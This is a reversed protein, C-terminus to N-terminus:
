CGRGRAWPAGRRPSPPSTPAACCVSRCRSANPGPNADPNQAGRGRRTSATRTTSASRASRPCCCRPTTPFVVADHSAHERLWALGAAYDHEVEAPVHAAARMDAQVAGSVGRVLQALAPLALFLLLAGVGLALAPRWSSPKVTDLFGGAFLALLLQGNYIPFLQSLGPVDLALGLAMGAAITGLAVVQLTGLPERRGTTFWLAAAVGALGLYGVLWLLFGPVTVLTALLGGGAASALAAAFPSKTYVTAAGIGVFGAYGEEGGTQWLTLPAGAAAM